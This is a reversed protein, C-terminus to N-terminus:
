NRKSNKNLENIQSSFEDFMYSMFNISNSIDTLKISEMDNKDILDINDTNKIEIKPGHKRKLCCCNAKKTANYNRFSTERIGACSFHSFVNCKSCKLDDSDFIEEICTSCM